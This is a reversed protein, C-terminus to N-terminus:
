EGSELTEIARKMAKKANKDQERDVQSRLAPLAARDGLAGLAQAAAVTVPAHSDDLCALLYGLDGTQPRDSWVVMVAERDLARLTPVEEYLAQRSETDRARVLELAADRVVPDYEDRLAARYLEEVGSWNTEIALALARHRVQAASDEEMVQKLLRLQQEDGHRRALDLAQMRNGPTPDSRAATEAAHLLEPCSLSAMAVLTRSRVAQHDDSKVRQTLTPCSQESRRQELEEVIELRVEPPEVPLHELLEEDTAKGAKFKAASAPAALAFLLVGTGIRRLTM